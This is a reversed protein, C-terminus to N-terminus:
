SATQALSERYRTRFARPTIGQRQQFRRNFNSLNNFGSTLSIELVSLDSDRLLECARSIRLDGLYQVFSRGTSRRFFRSFSSPSMGVIEAVESQTLKTAYREHLCAFVLDLRRQTSRDPPSKRDSNCIARLDNGGHSLRELIGLLELLREFRDLAKMTRLRAIVVDAVGGTIHLGRSAQQLLRAIHAMEPRQFFGDGLFSEGFQVVIARQLPAKNAPSVPEDSRWTHPLNTGLLVLDGSVYREITDGVFRQGESRQIYTLEFEPHYHWAGAFQRDAKVRYVFSTQQSHIVKQVHAKM